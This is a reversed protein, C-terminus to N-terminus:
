AFQEYDEFLGAFGAESDNRLAQLVRALVDRWRPSDWDIPLVAASGQSSQLIPRWSCWIFDQLNSDVLGLEQGKNLLRTM